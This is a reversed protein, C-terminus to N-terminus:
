TRAAPSRRFARGVIVGTLGYQQRAWGSVLRFHYGARAIPRIGSRKAGTADSTIPIERAKKTNGVSADTIRPPM